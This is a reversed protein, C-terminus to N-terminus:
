IDLPQAPDGVPDGPDGVQAYENRKSVPCAVLRMGNSKRSRKGNLKRIILAAKTSEATTPKEIELERLVESAQLWRWRGPKHDWCLGTQILEAIPDIVEFSENHENLLAMEEPTLFWGEGGEYLVTVQAWVQQMDLKHDYDLSTVEITWFRRNGTPDHLFEKQNVSAFFVTRRAFESERRAYPRRLVDRDRTIFAKLQAVDAKRFTADIEGLEVLWNSLCQKVSDRDDPRLFAGDQLVGLSAPVLQKFWKTKGIYQDGQFVLVGHASVGNPNFAAAVASVMWRTIFARKMAAVNPDTREGSAGVTGLFDSLRDQGDWPISKIWTAVPNFQNIDALYAIFEAVKATPMDFKACESMLWALSANQRNDVSFEGGPVLVEEEKTIVNYRVVVGLRRCVEHLNELTAKPKGKGACDPLFSYYDVTRAATVTTKAPGALLAEFREKFRASDAIHLASPDKFEKPMRVLKARTALPSKALWTEVTEGGQDPEVIVYVACGPPINNIWEDRWMSAGPLGLAEYGHHWLTLADTEGECIILRDVAGPLRWLGYLSPKSGKLWFFGRKGSLARRCKTGTIRGQRDRYEFGVVPGHELEINKVNARTLDDLPLRKALALAAVDFIAHHGNTKPQRIDAGHAALAEIVSEQSCGAHCKALIKGDEAVSLSLSPSSDDHAPCKAIGGTSTRKGHLQTLVEDLTM